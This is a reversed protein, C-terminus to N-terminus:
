VAHLLDGRHRLAHLLPKHREQKGHSWVSDILLGRHASSGGKSEGVSMQEADFSEGRLLDAGQEIKGLSIDGEIAAGLLLAVEQGSARDDIQKELIRGARARRELQGTLAEAAIDDVHLRGGTRDFFPF